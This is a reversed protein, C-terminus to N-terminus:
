KEFLQTHLRELPEIFAEHLKVIHLCFWEILQDWDQIVRGDCSQAYIVKIAQRNRKNEWILQDGFHSEISDKEDLLANLLAVNEDKDHRDWIQEIRAENENLVMTLFCYPVGIRYEIGAKDKPLKRGAFLTIGKHSMAALLRQFFSIRTYKFDGNFQSASLGYLPPREPRRISHQSSEVVKTDDHHESTAREQLIELEELIDIKKANTIKLEFPLAEYLNEPAQKISNLVNLDDGANSDLVIGAEINPGNIGRTTLNASGVYAVERGGAISIHITKPHFLGKAPLVLGLKAESLPIGLLGFLRRVGSPKTIHGNSGTLVTIELSSEALRELTPGLLDLVGAEFYGTQWRIAVVNEALIAKLWESVVDDRKYDLGNDLYNM